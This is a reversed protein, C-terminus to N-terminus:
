HHLNHSCNLQYEKEAREVQVTSHFIGIKRAMVTIKKLIREEDRDCTVHCSLNPKGFTMNWIHLDHVDTVGELSNIEFRIKDMDVDEPASDLILNCIDKIPPVSFLIAIIAFLISLVPDIVEWTPCFNLVLAGLVVGASQVLDGIIHAFAAKINQNDKAEVMSLNLQKYNNKKQEKNILPKVKEGGIKITQNRSNPRSHNHSHSHSHSCGHGHVHGHTHTHTHTHSHTENHSHGCESHQDKSTDDILLSHDNLSFDTGHSHNCNHHTIGHHTHNGTSHLLYAMIINFLLGLCATVLMTKVNLDLPEGYYVKIIREFGERLILTTMIYLVLISGIAGLIEARIYGFTYKKTSQKKTYAISVLSLVFGALDATLHAVDSWLAISNALKALVSEILIFVFCVTVIVVL